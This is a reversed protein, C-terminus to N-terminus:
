MKQKPNNSTKIYNIIAQKLATNYTRNLKNPLVANACTSIQNKYKGRIIYYLQQFISYYILQVSSRGM